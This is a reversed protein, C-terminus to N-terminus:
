FMASFHKSAFDNNLKVFNYSIMIIKLEEFNISKEELFVISSPCESFIHFRQRFQLLQLNLPKLIANNITVTFEAM